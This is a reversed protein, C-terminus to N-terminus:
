SSTTRAARQPDALPPPLEVEGLDDANRPLEHGFDFGPSDVIHLDPRKAPDALRETCGDVDPNPPLTLTEISEEVGGVGPENVGNHFAKLPRTPLGDHLRREGNPALASRDVDKGQM